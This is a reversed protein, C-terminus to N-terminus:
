NELQAQLDNVRNTADRYNVALEDLNPPLSNWKEQLKALENTAVRLDDFAKSEAKGKEDLAFELRRREKEAEALQKKIKEAETLIHAAEEPTKGLFSNTFAHLGMQASDLESRINGLEGVKSRYAFLLGFAALWALEALTILIVVSTRRPVIM